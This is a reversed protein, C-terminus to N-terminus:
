RQVTRQIRIKDGLVQQVTAGILGITGFPYNTAVVECSAATDGSFSLTGRTGPKIRPDLAMPSIAYGEYVETAIDVGPYTTEAPQAQRLYLSVTVAETQPLVNGYADTTTGVTALDFTASANALSALASAM